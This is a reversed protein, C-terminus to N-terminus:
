VEFETLDVPESVKKNQLNKIASDIMNLTSQSIEFPVALEHSEFEIEGEEFKQVRYYEYKSNKLSIKKKMNTKGNCTKISEIPM